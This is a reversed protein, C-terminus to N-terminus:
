HGHHAPGHGHHGGHHHHHDEGEAYKFYDVYAAVYDRAAKLEDPDFGKKSMAINYRRELEARRDEAILQRLPEFNGDVLAVDAAVVEPPLETGTPKIGEFGAGEGARHVRILTELFLRDAVEAAEPGLKRVRQVQEFLPRLEGEAEEHIWKLAFNINGSKLSRIGDVVAPGDATDCHASAPQVLRGLLLQMWANLRKM